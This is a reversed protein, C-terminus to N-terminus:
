AAGTPVTAVYGIMYLISTHYKWDDLATVDTDNQVTPASLQSITQVSISSNLAGQYQPLLKRLAEIIESKLESGSYDNDEDDRTWVHLRFNPSQITAPSKIASHIEGGAEQLTICAPGDGRPERGDYVHEGILKRLTQRGEERTADTMATKSTLFECLAQDIM